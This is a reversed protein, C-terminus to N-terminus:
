GYSRWRAQVLSYGLLCVSCWPPLEELCCCGSAKLRRESNFLKSSRLLVRSSPGPASSGCCYLPPSGPWYFTLVGGVIGVIGELLMPWWPKQREAAKGIATVITFIGDTLVYAGFLIVLAMLSIGPWFFVLVGFVLALLGRLAVAWWKQTLIHTIRQDLIDAM